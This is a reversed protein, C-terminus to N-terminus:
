SLPIMVSVHPPEVKKRGTDSMGICNQTLCANGLHGLWLRMVWKRLLFKVDNDGIMHDGMGMFGFREQAAEPFPQAIITNENNVVFGIMLQGQLTEFGIRTADIEKVLLKEGLGGELGTHSAPAKLGLSNLHSTIVGALEFLVHYENTALLLWNISRFAVPLRARAQEPSPFRAATDSLKQAKYLCTGHYGAKQRIPM